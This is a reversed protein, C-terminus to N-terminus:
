FSSKKEAEEGAFTSQLPKKMLFLSATEPALTSFEFREPERVRVKITM